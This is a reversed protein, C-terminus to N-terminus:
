AVACWEEPERWGLATLAARIEDRAGPAGVAAVAYAGRVSPVDAPAIVPAGHITQGIKRRDLEVFAAVRHGAEQLALAFAKGVPGAGWVIVDRGALRRGLYHAKCRRFADAAYRRDTRSLRGPSERWELLVEPVKGLRFGGSWLRLVLDYDEPWGPDRWGGVADLAARRVALTPHAIPCEVFIEREIEDPTALGNIWTEYRRAGQKLGRRPFYRVGTGCAALSPDADLLAVQRALREPCAVDDADMRAVLEGDAEALGTALAPVLGRRLTRIVRVRADCEAWRDLLAATVDRSGDDVAILEFDGFTQTALSGVADDVTPAADRCPFLISIRPM